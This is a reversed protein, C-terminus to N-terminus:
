NILLKSQSALCSKKCHEMQNAPLLVRKPLLRHHQSNQSALCSKKCHEMQNAPLLVRKLLLRHHQSNQSALCSKKCHEMQNAPLLVRKLLLRHHQSNQSALCSKKCHEMQNAPLLLRKLLLRHHQSLGKRCICGRLRLSQQVTCLLLYYMYFPAPLARLQGAKVGASSLSNKQSQNYPREQKAKGNKIDGNPYLVPQSGQSENVGEM